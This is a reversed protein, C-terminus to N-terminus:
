VSGEKFRPWKMDEKVNVNNISKGALLLAETM